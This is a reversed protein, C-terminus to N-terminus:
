RETDERLAAAVRRADEVSLGLLDVGDGDFSSDILDHLLGRLLEIEEHYCWRDDGSCGCACFFEDGNLHDGCSRIHPLTPRCDARGHKSM